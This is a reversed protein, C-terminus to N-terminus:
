NELICSGLHHKSGHTLYPRPASSGLQSRSSQQPRRGSPMKLGVGAEGRLLVRKSHTELEPSWWCLLLARPFLCLGSESQGISFLPNPSFIALTAKHTLACQPQLKNGSSVRGKWFAARMVENQAKSSMPGRHQAAWSAGTTQHPRPGSPM